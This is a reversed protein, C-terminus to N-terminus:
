KGFNNDTCTLNDIDMYFFDDSSIDWKKFGGFEFFNIESNIVRIDKFLSNSSFGNLLGYDVYRVLYTNAAFADSYSLNNFSVNNLQMTLANTITIYVTNSNLAIFLNFKLNTKSENIFTANEVVAKKNSGILM